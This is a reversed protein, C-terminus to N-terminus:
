KITFHSLISGVDRNEEADELISIDFIEKRNIFIYHNKSLRNEKGERIWIDIDSHVGSSAMYEIEKRKEDVYGLTTFCTDVVKGFDGNKLEEYLNVDDYITYCKIEGIYDGDYYLEVDNGNIKYTMNDPLAVTYKETAINNKQITSQSETNDSIEREVIGNEEQQLQEKTKVYIEAGVVDKPISGTNEYVQKLAEYVEEDSQESLQFDATNYTIDGIIKTTNEGADLSNSLIFTSLLLFLGKM